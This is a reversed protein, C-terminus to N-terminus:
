GAARSHDRRRWATGEVDYVGPSIRSPATLDGRLYGAARQLREVDDAFNGLGSNCTFCLVGRVTGDAHNHDVHYKEGLPRRCIPCVRAQADAMEEARAPPTLKDERGVVVLTPCAIRALGPRSDPRNLIATQQRLFAAKGVREAMALVVGAVAPDQLRDAHILNPLLQPTVGKFRGKEALAMLGRRRARQEESDARATTDVLALRAVREPAQRVVELAIYGGMSHGAISFRPPAEDLIRKAIGAMTNDRIHNALVVPGQQWLAPMQPAYIRPSCALGPVLILPLSASM